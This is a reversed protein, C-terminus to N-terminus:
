RRRLAFLMLDDAPGGNRFRRVDDALGDLISTLNGASGLLACALRGAGYEEGAGNEADIAGDTYFLLTDGPDLRLPTPAYTSDPFLGLPLGAEVAVPALQSGRRVLPPWHGASYLEVDRGPGLSAVALTAYSAPHTDDHLLAGSRALLKGVPLGLPALSRFTALLSTTLLSAAIGKGAVDGVIVLTEDRGPRRIVDCFDGGVPGAADYRYRYEWGPLTGGQRPLLRRQVDRALELDRQLRAVEALSPHEECSRALPDEALRGSGVFEHCVDCRGYTGADVRALAEDVEAVLAGLGSGPHAAVAHMLARRRAVLEARTDTLNLTTM